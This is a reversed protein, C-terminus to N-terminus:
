FPVFRVTHEKLIQVPNCYFGPSFQEPHGMKHCGLSMGTRAKTQKIDKRALCLAFGKFNLCKM